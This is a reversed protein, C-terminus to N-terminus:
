FMSERTQRLAFALIRADVMWSPFLSLTRSASGVCAEVEFTGSSGLTFPFTQPPILAVCGSVQLVAVMVALGSITVLKRKM